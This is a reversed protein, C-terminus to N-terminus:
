RPSSNEILFGERSMISLESVRRNIWTERIQDHSLKKFGKLVAIEKVDGPQLRDWEESAREEFDALQEQGLHLISEVRAELEKGKLGENRAMDLAIMRAKGERATHFWFGDSATLTRGVYKTYRWLQGINKFKIRELVGRAGFKSVNEKGLMEEGLLLHRKGEGAGVASGSLSGFLAIKLNQLTKIPNLTIADFTLDAVVQFATDGFNKLHTSYGSLINAYWVSWLIDVADIGEFQDHVYDLLEMTATSRTASNQPMRAIKNALSGRM